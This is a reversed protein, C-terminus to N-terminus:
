VALIYVENEYDIVKSERVIRRTEGSNGILIRCKQKVLKSFNRDLLLEIDPFNKSIVSNDYVGAANLKVMIWMRRLEKVNMNEPSFAHGWTLWKEYEEDTFEIESTLDSIVDSDVGMQVEERKKSKNKLELQICNTCLGNIMLHPDVTSGCKRCTCDDVTEKCSACISHNEGIADTYIEREETAKGCWECRAM